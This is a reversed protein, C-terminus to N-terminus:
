GGAGSDPAAVAPGADPVLMPPGGLHRPAGDLIWREILLLDAEPLPRDPPMRSAGQARLMHVVRSQGPIFPTVMPRFARQCVVVGSEDSQTWRCNQEPTGQKDVIWVWLGTLSTYGRDPDSFDLGAAAAARSHCSVSACNPQFVAPSLYEWAAPRTDTESGCATGLLAALLCVGTVQRSANAFAPKAQRLWLAPPESGKSPESCSTRSV